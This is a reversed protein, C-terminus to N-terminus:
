PSNELALQNAWVINLIVLQTKRKQCVIYLMLRRGFSYTWTKRVPVLPPGQRTFQHELACFTLLGKVSVELWEGKKNCRVNVIHKDM